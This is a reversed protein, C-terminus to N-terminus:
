GSGVQSVAPRNPQALRELFPRSAVGIKEPMRPSSQRRYSQSSRLSEQVLCATFTEGGRLLQATGAQYPEPVDRWVNGNNWLIVAKQTTSDLTIHFHAQTMNNCWIRASELQRNITM